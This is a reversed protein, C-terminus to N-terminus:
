TGDNTYSDAGFIGTVGMMSIKFRFERSFSAGRATLMFDINM